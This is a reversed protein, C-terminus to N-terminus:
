EGECVRSAAVESEADHNDEGHELEYGPLVPHFDQRYCYGTEDNARHNKVVRESVFEDGSHFGQPVEFAAFRKASFAREVLAKVVIELEAGFYEGFIGNEADSEPAKYKVVRSPLNGVVSVDFDKCPRAKYAKNGEYYNKVHC